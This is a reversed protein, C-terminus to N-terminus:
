TFKRFLSLEYQTALLSCPSSKREWFQTRQRRQLESTCRRIERRLCDSSVQRLGIWNAALFENHWSIAKDIL